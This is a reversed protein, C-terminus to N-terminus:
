LVMDATSPFAGLRGHRRSGWTADTSNPHHLCLVAEEVQQCFFRPGYVIGRLRDKFIVRLRLVM